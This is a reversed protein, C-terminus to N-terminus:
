SELKPLTKSSPFHFLQSLEQASMLMKQEKPVRSFKLTLQNLCSGIARQQSLQNQLAQTLAELRDRTEALLFLQAKAIFLPQSSKNLFHALTERSIVARRDVKSLFQPNVAALSEFPLGLEFNLNEHAPYVAIQLQAAEGLPRLTSFARLISLFLSKESNEPTYLPLHPAREYSFYATKVVPKLHSLWLTAPRGEKIQLSFNNKLARYARNENAKGVLLTMQIEEGIAEVAAELIFSIKLQHLLTFIEQAIERGDQAASIKITLASFNLFKQRHQEFIVAGILVIGGSLLLFVAIYGAVLAFTM